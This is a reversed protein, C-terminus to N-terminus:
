EEAILLHIDLISQPQVNAYEVPVQGLHWGRGTAEGYFYRNASRPDVVYEGRLTEAGAVGFALHGPYHLLVTQFGLRATLAACLV